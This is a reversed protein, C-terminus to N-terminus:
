SNRILSRTSKILGNTIKNLEITHNAIASFEEPPLYGIDRAILLQSQIETLSGLATSYFQAKEKCSNRSFGEAINSTVSVAARRLQNSLGFQEEKPFNKTIRYIELVLQHGVQWARLDTFSRIKKSEEGMNKNLLNVILTLQINKRHSRRNQRM